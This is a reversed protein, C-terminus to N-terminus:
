VFTSLAPAAATVLQAQLQILQEILNGANQGTAGSGASGSGSASSAPTTMEVTSGDAYSITTTTSGDSNTTSQTQAGSASASSLLADITSQGSTADAQGGGGAHMHHHHHHGAARQASALESQSISGDGNTDLKAFLADASSKDIGDNGLATEFESQSIQGDGNTDLESFLQSPGPVQTASALQKPQHLRRWQRRAQLIVCRRQIIVGDNGLATEFESQSIQGCGTDLSGLNRGSGAAGVARGHHGPRSSSSGGTTSTSAVAPPPSGTTADSGSWEGLLTSLPNANAAGSTGSSGQALLSELYALPNSTAGVSMSM